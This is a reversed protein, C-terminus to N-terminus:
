IKLYRRTALLSSVTGVIAGLIIMGLLVFGIYNIVISTTPGVSVGWSSLTNQLGYLLGVGAATANIKGADDGQGVEIAAGHALGYCALAVSLFDLRM